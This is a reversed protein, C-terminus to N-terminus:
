KSRLADLTTALEKYQKNYLAIVQDLGLENVQDVMEQYKVEFDDKTECTILKPIAANLYQTIKEETKAEESEPDLVAAVVYNTIDFPKFVFNKNDTWGSVNNKWGLKAYADKQVDTAAAMAFAPDNSYRGAQGNPLLGVTRMPFLTSYTNIGVSKLYDSAGPGTMTEIFKATPVMQDGNMTYDRGEQGWGNLVTMEETAMYNIVQVIREANPSTKLIGCTEDPRVSNYLEYRTNRGEDKAIQLRIPTVIYQMEPTGREIAKQNWGVVGWNMFNISLAVGSDGKASCEAFGDTWAEPDMIGERYLENYFEATAKYYPHSVLPVIEGSDVDVLGTTKYFHQYGSHRPLYTSLLPGVTDGYFFAMGISPMGNSMPIKEMAEKLFAVYDDTTDLDPWGCAELADVRVVVDLCPQTMQLQDPGSQWVYLNGNKKDFNRWFPILDSEYSYFNPMLDRYDDLNVLVDADVYKLTVDDLATNVIDIDGWNQAALMMLAKEFHSENFPIFQIEMKFKDFIMKGIEDDLSSYVADLGNGLVKIVVPELSEAQAFVCTPILLSLVLLLPLFRRM